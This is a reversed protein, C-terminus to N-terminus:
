TFLTKAWGYCFLSIGRNGGRAATQEYLALKAAAATADLGQFSRAIIGSLFPIAPRPESKLHGMQQALLRELAAPEENYNMPVIFDLLGADVWAPWRQAVEQGCWPYGAFVAASLRRRRARTEERLQEVLATVKSAKWAYWAERREPASYLRRVRGAHDAAAEFFPLGTERQFDSLTQDDFSFRGSQKLVPMNAAEAPAPNHAERSKAIPTPLKFHYRIYDLHIGDVDYNDMIEGCLATLYDRVEPRALNLYVPHDGSDGFSHHLM